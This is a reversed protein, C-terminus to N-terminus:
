DDGNRRQSHILASHALKVCTQFCQSKHDNWERGSNLEVAKLWSSLFSQRSSEHTSLKM